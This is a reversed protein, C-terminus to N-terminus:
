KGEGTGPRERAASSSAERAKRETESVIRAFANAAAIESRSLKDVLRFMATGSVINTVGQDYPWPPQYRLQVSYEGIENLDFIRDLRVFFAV